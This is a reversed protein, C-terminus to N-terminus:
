EAAAGTTLRAECKSPPHGQSLPNGTVSAQLPVLLASSAARNAGRGRKITESPFVSGYRELM